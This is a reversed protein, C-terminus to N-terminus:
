PAVGHDRKYTEVNEKGLISEVDIESPDLPVIIQVNGDPRIWLKTPIWANDILAEVQGSPARRLDGVSSAPARTVHEAIRELANVQRYTLATNVCSSVGAGLTILGGALAISLGLRTKPLDRTGPAEVARSSARGLLDGYEVADPDCQLAPGHADRPAGCRVCQDPLTQNPLYTSM